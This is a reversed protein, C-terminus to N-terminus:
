ENDQTEKEKNEQKYLWRIIYSPLFFGNLFSIILPFISPIGNNVMITTIIINLCLTFFLAGIYNIFVM